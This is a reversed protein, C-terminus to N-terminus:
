KGRADFVRHNSGDADGVVYRAHLVPKVDETGQKRRKSRRARFFDEEEKQIEM